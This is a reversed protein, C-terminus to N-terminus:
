PKTVEVSAEILRHLDVRRIWIRRTGPFRVAPLVGRVVLDHLSTKPVGIEASAAGISLLLANPNTGKARRRRPVGTAM